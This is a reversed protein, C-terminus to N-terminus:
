FLTVPEPGGLVREGGRERWVSAENTQSRDEKGLSRLCLGVKPGQAGEFM